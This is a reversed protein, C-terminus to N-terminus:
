ALSRSSLRAYCAALDPLATAETYRLGVTRRARAGLEARLAPSEVLRGIAGALAAADGAPVLLVGGEQAMEPVAGVPTAACAMGAAMAEVLSNPFGEGYSPLLFISCQQM